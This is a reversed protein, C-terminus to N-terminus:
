IRPRRMPEVDTETPTDTVLRTGNLQQPMTVTQPAPLQRAPYGVFERTGNATQMPIRQAGQQMVGNIGTQATGNGTTNAPNLVAATTPTDTYQWLGKGEPLTKNLEDRFESNALHVGALAFASSQMGTHGVLAGVGFTVAFGFLLAKMGKLGLLSPLWTYTFIALPLAIANMGVDKARLSSDLNQKFKFNFNNM